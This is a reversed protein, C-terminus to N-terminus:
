AATHDRRRGAVWVCVCLCPRATDSPKKMPILVVETSPRGKRSRPLECAWEVEKRRLSLATNAFALLRSLQREEAV